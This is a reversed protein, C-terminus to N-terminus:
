RLRGQILIDDGPLKTAQNMRARDGIVKPAIFLQMEDILNQDIFTEATKKGGEILLQSVNTQSLLKMLQKLEFLGNKMNNRLIQIGKKQYLFLRRKPVSPSVVIATPAQRDSYLKLGLPTRLTPDLVIRLPNRGHGHSTLSPNDAIATQAGVLVADVGARLEHVRKRSEPSSIWKSDGTRTATKGDLTMALKLITYPRKQTMWTIFPRNLERAAETELGTYVAIGASKLGKIGRGSVKPNPEPMAIYAKKIGSQAVLPLCPPTKGWHTCPELTLYMTAGRSRQGAKRLAMVEAHPGGYFSHYGEGVIKGNKVIVCGVLPNPSVRGHGRRALALARQMFTAQPKM